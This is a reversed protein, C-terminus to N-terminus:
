DEKRLKKKNIKLTFFNDLNHHIMQIGNKLTNFSKKEGKPSFKEKHHLIKREKEVLSFLKNMQLQIEPNSINQSQSQQAIYDNKILIRDTTSVTENSSEESQATIITYNEIGSIYNHDIDM